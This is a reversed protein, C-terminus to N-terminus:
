VRPASRCSTRSRRERSADSAERSPNTGRSASSHTRGASARAGELTFLPLVTDDPPPPGVNGSFMRRYYPLSSMGMAVFADVREAHRHAHSRTRAQPDAGHHTRAFRFRLVVTNPRASPVVETSIKLAATLAWEHASTYDNFRELDTDTACPLRLRAAKRPCHLTHERPIQQETSSRPSSSLVPGPLSNCKVLPESVVHCKHM